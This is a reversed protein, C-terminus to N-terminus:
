HIEPPQLSCRFEKSHRRVAYNPICDSINLLVKWIITAPIQWDKSAHRTTSVKFCVLRPNLNWELAQFLTSPSNLACSFYITMGSLCWATLFNVRQIGGQSLSEPHRSRSELIDGTLGGQLRGRLVALTGGELSGTPDSRSWVWFTNGSQVECVAM